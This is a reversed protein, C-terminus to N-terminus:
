KLDAPKLNRNKWFDGKMFGYMTGDFKGVLDVKACDPIRDKLGPLYYVANVLLRRVGESLLDNSSGMTTTIVQGKKGNETQYSKEWVVPMMPNNKEGELPKDDPNMGALVQGLVLPKSDGPLPLRVGYV